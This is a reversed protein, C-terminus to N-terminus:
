HIIINYKGTNKPPYSWNVPGKDFRYNLRFLVTNRWAEVFYQYAQDWIEGDGWGDHILILRTKNKEKGSPFFKLTVHTQQNRIDPLEPPNKWSFSFMKNSQVALIRLGEAGRQGVPADPYFYIDLTGDIKLDIHAKPALFSELGQRTTWVKWVEQVPANIYTEIHINRDPQQGYISGTIFCFFIVPIWFKEVM